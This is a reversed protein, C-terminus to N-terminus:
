NQIKTKSIRNQKELKLKERRKKDRRKGVLISCPNCMRQWPSHMHVPISCEQCKRLAKFVVKTEVPKELPPCIIMRNRIGHLVVKHCEDYFDQTLM